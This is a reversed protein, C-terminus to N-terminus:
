PSSHKIEGRRVMGRGPHFGGIPSYHGDGTQKLAKRSYAAIVASGDGRASREVDRM